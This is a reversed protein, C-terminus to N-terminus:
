GKYKTRIGRLGVLGLGLFLLTGPEPVSTTHADFSSVSGGEHSIVAKTTISYPSSPDAVSAGTTGSFAGTFPGLSAIQTGDFLANSGSWLETFSVAGVTTGGVSFNLSPPAATFGAVSAEITLAGSGMSSVNVSSLDLQPASPSGIVPYTIGTTVNIIWNGIPGNYVIVGSTAGALDGPGGDLVTVSSNGDSLLIGFYPDTAFSPQAGILLALAIMAVLSMREFGKM